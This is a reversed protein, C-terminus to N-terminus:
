QYSDEDDEDAIRLEEAEYVAILSNLTSLLEDLAKAQYYATERHESMSPSSDFVARSYQERLIAVAMDFADTKILPRLTRGALAVDELSLNM